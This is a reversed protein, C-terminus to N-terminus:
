LHQLTQCPFTLITETCQSRQHISIHTRNVRSAKPWVQRSTQRSISRRMQLHVRLGLCPSQCNIECIKTTSNITTTTTAAYFLSEYSFKLFFYIHGGRPANIQNNRHGAHSRPKSYIACAVEFVDPQSTSRDSARWTTVTKLRHRGKESWGVSCSSYHATLCFFFLIM